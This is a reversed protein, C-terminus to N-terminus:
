PDQYITKDGISAYRPELEAVTYEKEAEVSLRYIADSNGGVSLYLGDTSEFRFSFKYYGAFKVKKQGYQKIFDEYNM